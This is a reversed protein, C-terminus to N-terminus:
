ALALSRADDLILRAVDGLARAARSQPHEIGVPRRATIARYVHLDDVLFGYSLLQAGLHRSAVGAVRRFGAEAEAVRRVGHVTVGIRTEPVAALVRKALAYAEHLEAGEATAFLLVWRLLARAHRAERLWEPPVRALVVGGDPADAARAVALDLAARALEALGACPALVLEAGVPGPGPEPWLLSSEPEEPALLTASAGRRALEVALNWAFAARVVDRSGIPLAVIPLAAPREPRPGPESRAELPRRAPALAEHARRDPLFYDIVDGLDRPV